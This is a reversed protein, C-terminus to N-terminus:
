KRITRGLKRNKKIEQKVTQTDIIMGAIPMNEVAVDGMMPEPELYVTPQFNNEM